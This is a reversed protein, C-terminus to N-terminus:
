RNLANVIAARYIDNDGGVLSEIINGYGDILITEPIYGTTFFKGFSEFVSDNADITIFQADVSDTIQIATDRDHELDILITVFGVRDIFEDTILALGPM